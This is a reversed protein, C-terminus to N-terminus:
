NFFKIIYLYIRIIKKLPPFFIKEHFNLIIHLLFIFNLQYKIFKFNKIIEM